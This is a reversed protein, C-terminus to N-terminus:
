EDIGGKIATYVVTENDHKIDNRIFVLALLVSLGGTIATGVALGMFFSADILAECM